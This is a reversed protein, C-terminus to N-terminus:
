MLPNFSMETHSLLPQTVSNAAHYRPAVSCDTSQTVGNSLIVQMIIVTSHSLLATTYSLTISLTISLQSQCHCGISKQSM